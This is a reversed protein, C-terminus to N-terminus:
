KKLCCGGAGCCAKAETCCKAADRFCEQPAVCCGKDKGCCEKNKACCGANTPAACCAKDKACCAMKAKCCDGAKEDAPVATALFGVAFLVGAIMKLLMIWRPYDIRTLFPIRVTQAIGPTQLPAVV